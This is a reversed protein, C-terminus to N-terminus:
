DPILPINHFYTPDITLEEMWRLHMNVEAASCNVRFSSVTLKRISEPTARYGEYGEDWAGLFRNNEGLAVYCRVPNGDEDNPACLHLVCLADMSLELSYNNTADLKNMAPYAILEQQDETM